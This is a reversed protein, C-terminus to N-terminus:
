PKVPKATDLGDAAAGLVARATGYYPLRDQVQDGITKLATDMAQKDIGFVKGLRNDRNLELLAGTVPNKLIAEISHAIDEPVGLAILAPGLGHGPNRLQDLFAQYLGNLDNAGVNDLAESSVRRAYEKAPMLKLPAQNNLANKVFYMGDHSDGHLNGYADYRYLVKQGDARNGIYTTRGDPEIQYLRIDTLGNVPAPPTEPGKNLHTFIDGRQYAFSGVVANVDGEAFRILTQKVRTLQGPAVASSFHAAFHELRTPASAMDKLWAQMEAQDNFEHFAEGSDDPVYLLLNTEGNKPPVRKVVFIDSSQVGDVAFTSVQVSPLGRKGPATAATALMLGGRSLTGDGFTEQAGDMFAKRDTDPKIWSNVLAQPEKAGVIPPHLTQPGTSVHNTIATM